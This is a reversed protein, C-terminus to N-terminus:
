LSYSRQDRLSAHRSFDGMKSTSLFKTKLTANIVERRQPDSVNSQIGSALHVNGDNHELFIIPM